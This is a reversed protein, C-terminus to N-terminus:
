RVMLKGSQRGEPGDIHYLYMGATLDSVSWEVQQRGGVTGPISRRVQRGNLDTLTAVYQAGPKASLRLTAVDGSPNPAITAGYDALPQRTSTEGTEIVALMFVELDLGGSLEKFSGFYLQGDFPYIQLVNEGDGCDFTTSAIGIYGTTDAIDDYVGRLDIGVFFSDNSVEVPESFTFSVLDEFSLDDIRVTDSSGLPASLNGDADLEDYVLAVLYGDNITEAQVQLLSTIVETVNFTAAGDYTLRQLVEYDSYTNSGTIFGEFSDSDDFYATIGQDPDSACDESAFSPFITDSVFKAASLGPVSRPKMPTIDAPITRQASLGCSVLLIAFLVPLTKMM